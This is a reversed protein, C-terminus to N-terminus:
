PPEWGWDPLIQSLDTQSTVLTIRSPLLPSHDVEGRRACDFTGKPCGPAHLSEVTYACPPTQSGPSGPAAGPAQALEEGQIRLDRNPRVSPPALPPAPVLATGSISLYGAIAGGGAFM